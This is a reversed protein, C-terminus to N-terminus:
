PKVSIADDLRGILESLDGQKQLIMDLANKVEAESVAKGAEEVLWLKLLGGLRGLDGRLKIVEMMTEQDILSPPSYGLGLKRLLTSVPLRVSRATKQIVTREEDTVHVKLAAGTARPGVDKRRKKANKQDTM